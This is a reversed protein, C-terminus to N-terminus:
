EAPVQAPFIHRTKDWDARGSRRALLYRGVARRAALMAIANGVLIRPVSRLGERWGYAVTVFGLRMALRWVLLLMAAYSLAALAPTLLVIEHGTAVALAALPATTLLAAYAACLLLAALLSQRDRLRMWREAFGGSWGLRDWGSLAIGVMWRAKQGVAADITAPFHERTVVAPGGSDAPLRVFTSRRGLARLRLGLEYDETLSAADFPQGGPGALAELADRSLACGVGASPLGAGLAERVVLEKGHAEAFEDAYHGAIWRSDADILPLVPLQVLDFREILSDFLRLEASHVVDEADHLVVAKARWGEAAEDALLAAWIANLCDAKTTPGPMWGVVTRVRPDAVARVAKATAPDNPYCGVYIRYDDHDFRGLAHRLMPGIVEAEQWAPVFIVLPGARLPAPLDAVSAPRARLLARKARLALWALDIALDGIGLLIFGAAAFLTLERVVFASIGIFGSAWEM